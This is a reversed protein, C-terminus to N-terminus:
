SKFGSVEDIYWEITSLISIFQITKFPEGLLISVEGTSFPQIPGDKAISKYKRKWIINGQERFKGSEVPHSIIIQGSEPIAKDYYLIVIIFQNITWDTGNYISINIEDNKTASAMGSIKTIENPPLKQSFFNKENVPLWGDFGRLIETYGTFRNIKVLLQNKGINTKEYLYITSWLLIGCIIITICSALIIINNQKM